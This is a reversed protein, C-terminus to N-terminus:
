TTNEESPKVKSKTREMGHESKNTKPKKEKHEKEQIIQIKVDFIPLDLVDVAGITANKALFFQPRPSMVGLKVPIAILAITIGWMTPHGVQHEKLFNNIILTASTYRKINLAKKLDQNIDQIHRQIHAHPRSPDPVSTPMMRQVQRRMAMLSLKVPKGARFNLVDRSVCGKATRSGPHGSHALLFQDLNNMSTLM